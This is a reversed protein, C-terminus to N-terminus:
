ATLDSVACLMPRNDKLITRPGNKGGEFARSGSYHPVFTGEGDAPTGNFCAYGAAAAAAPTGMDLRATGLDVLERLAGNM